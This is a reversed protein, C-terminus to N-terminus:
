YGSVATYVCSSGPVQPYVCTHVCLYMCEHACRYMVMCAVSAGAGAVAHVVCAPVAVAQLSSM